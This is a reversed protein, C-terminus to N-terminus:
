DESCSREGNRVRKLHTRTFTSAHRCRRCHTPLPGEIQDGGVDAERGGTFSRKQRLYSERLGDHLLACLVTARRAGSRGMAELGCNRSTKAALGFPRLADKPLGLKSM